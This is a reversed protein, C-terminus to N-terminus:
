APRSWALLSEAFAARSFLTEARRHAAARHASIDGRLLAALPRTLSEPASPDYLVGTDGVIEDFPSLNPAIVCLHNGMAEVLVYGWDDLSSGFVFLEHQAMLSQVESRPLPGTFVAPFENRCAWQQFEQSAGGVLTLSFQAWDPMQHLAELLWRVRKRPEELDLAATIIKYPPTSKELPTAPPVETGPHVVASKVGHKVLVHNLRQSVALVGDASRYARWDKPWWGITTMMIRSASRSLHWGGYRGVKAFYSWFSTPYAWATVYQPVSVSPDQLSTQNLLYATPQIGSQVLHEHLYGVFGTSQPSVREWEHVVKERLTVLKPPPPDFRLTEVKCNEPITVFHSCVLLVPQGAEQLAHAAEWCWSAMGNTHQLYAVVLM